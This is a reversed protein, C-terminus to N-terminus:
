QCIDVEWDDVLIGEVTFVGKKEARAMAIGFYL